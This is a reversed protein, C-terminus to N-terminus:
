QDARARVQIEFLMEGPEGVACTICHGDAGRVLEGTTEDRKVM